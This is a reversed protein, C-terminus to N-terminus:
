AKDLVSLKHGNKKIKSDTNEEEPSKWGEVALLVLEPRVQIVMGLQEPKVQAGFTFGYRQVLANYEDVFIQQREQENM